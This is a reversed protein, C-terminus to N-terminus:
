GLVDKEGKRNGAKDSLWNELGMNVAYIIDKKSAIAYLNDNVIIM